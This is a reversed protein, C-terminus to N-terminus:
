SPTPWSATQGATCSDAREASAHGHFVIPQGQRLQRLLNQPQLESLNCHAPLQEASLLQVAGCGSVWRFHALYQAQEAAGGQRALSLQTLPTSLGTGRQDLLIM